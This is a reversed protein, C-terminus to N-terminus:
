KCEELYLRVRNIGGDVNVVDTFGQELMYKAAYLSRIGHACLVYIKQKKNLQHVQKPLTGLPILKSDALHFDHWEEPERVDIIEMKDKCRQQNQYKKAFEEASIEDFM